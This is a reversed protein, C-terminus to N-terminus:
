GLDDNPLMRWADSPDDPWDDLDDPMGVLEPDDDSWNIGREVRAQDLGGAFAILLIRLADVSENSQAFPTIRELFEEVQWCGFIALALTESGFFEPSVAVSRAIEYLDDGDNQITLM